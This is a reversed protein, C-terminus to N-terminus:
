SLTKEVFSKLPLLNGLIARSTNNPANNTAVHLIANDPAKKLLPTIYDYIDNITAGPFARIKVIWGKVSLREQDIGSIMSDGVILTTDKRWKSKDEVKCESQNQNNPKRQGNQYRLHM